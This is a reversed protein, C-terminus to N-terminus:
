KKEGVAAIAARVAIRWPNMLGEKTFGDALKCAALLEDRQATLEAIRADKSVNSDILEKEQMESLYPM